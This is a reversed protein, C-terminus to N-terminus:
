GEETAGNEDEKFAREEYCAWCLTADEREQIDEDPDTAGCEECIMGERISM